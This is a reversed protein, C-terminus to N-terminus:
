FFLYEKWEEEINGTSKMLMLYHPRRPNPLRKTFEEVLLDAKEGNCKPCATVMNDWTDKGGKSRPLVHDITLFNKPWYDDCYVCQYNDRKFVNDRTLAVKSHHNIYKRVKIISPKHIVKESNVLGFTEEHNYIIDANGKYHLVYARESSIITKAMYTQDLVLCRKKSM